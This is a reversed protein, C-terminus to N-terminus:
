KGPRILKMAVPLPMPSKPSTKVSRKSTSLYGSITRSKAKKKKSNQLKAATLANTLPSNSSADSFEQLFSTKNDPFVKAPDFLIDKFIGFEIAYSSSLALRKIGMLLNKNRIKEHTKKQKKQLM